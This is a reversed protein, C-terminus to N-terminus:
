ERRRFFFRLVSGTVLCTAGIALASMGLGTGLLRGKASNEDKPLHTVPETEKKLNTAKSKGTHTSTPGASYTDTTNSMVSITDIWSGTIYDFGCPRPAFSSYRTCVSISGDSGAITMAHAILREEEKIPVGVTNGMGGEGCVGGENALKMVVSYTYEKEQVENAWKSNPSDDWHQRIETDLLDRFEEKSPFGYVGRFDERKWVFGFFGFIERNGIDKWEGDSLNSLYCTIGLVVYDGEAVIIKRFENNIQIQEINKESERTLAHLKRSISAPMGMPQVVFGTRFGAYRTRTDILPAAHQLIM